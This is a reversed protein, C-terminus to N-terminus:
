HRRSTAGFPTPGVDLSRLMAGARKAPCLSHLEELGAFEAFPSVNPTAYMPASPQVFDCVIPRSQGRFVSLQLHVPRDTWLPSLALSELRNEPEALQEHHGLDMRTAILARQQRGIIAIHRCRQWPRNIMPTAM